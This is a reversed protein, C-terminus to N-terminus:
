LILSVSDNACGNALTDGAPLFSPKGNSTLEDSSWLYQEKILRSPIYMTSAIEVTGAEQKHQFVCVPLM